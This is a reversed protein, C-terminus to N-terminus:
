SLVLLSVRVIESVNAANVCSVYRSTLNLTGVPVKGSANPASVFSFRREKQFVDTSVTGTPGNDGVSLFTLQTLTGLADPITGRQPSFFFVNRDFFFRALM